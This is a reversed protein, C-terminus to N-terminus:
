WRRSCLDVNLWHCKKTLELAKYHIIEAVYITDMLPSRLCFIVGGLFSEAKKFLNNTM